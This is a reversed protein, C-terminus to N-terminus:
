IVKIISSMGSIQHELVHCHFMWDGPNDAVFAIETTENPMVNVTDQWQQYKTPKGDRSLVRFAHGHLHMPHSFATDNTIKLLCTQGLKLLFLPEQQHGSGVTDNMAWVMGQRVLERISQREGKLIASRMGGMAGGALTIDHVVPNSLDPEPMTNAALEIPKTLAQTRIPLQDSCSFSFVNDLQRRYAQDSIAVQTAPEIMMDIVLDIRMAAALHILGDEPTHPTVPHGDIAIVQTSLSSFDLSFSRANAANILRLRVREGSRVTLEPNSQGNVTVTNGIRGAHSRDHGNSFNNDIEFQEDLRWDDLMLVFENDVQIPNTEEIILAGYLGRGIQETSNFHPHYWYTGADPLNFRYLFSEGPEIPAQTLEPVGDMNNPLRIGHCHLTTAQDLNNEVRIELNDGQKARIQPGPLVDNYSWIASRPYPAGLFYANSNTTILTFSETSTTKACANRLWSYNGIALVGSALFSRREMPMLKVPKKLGLKLTSWAKYVVDVFALNFTCKILAYASATM